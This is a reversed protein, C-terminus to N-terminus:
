HDNSDTRVHEPDDLIKRILDSPFGRSQLFRAQKAWEERSGPRVGRFKRLWVERARTMEDGLSDLAASIIADEVGKTRLEHSLRANGLTRGRATSRQEAYRQDSLLGLRALDDLLAALEEASEAHPGLKRELESRAHDRRSLLRLARERLGSRDPATAQDSFPNV